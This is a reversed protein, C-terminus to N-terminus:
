RKLVKHTYGPNSITLGAVSGPVLGEVKSCLNGLTQIDIMRLDIDHAGATLDLGYTLSWAFSDGLMSLRCSSSICCAVLVHVTAGTRDPAM